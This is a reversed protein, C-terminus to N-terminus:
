FWLSILTRAQPKTKEREQLVIVNRLYNLHEHNEMDCQVLPVPPGELISYSSVSEATQTETLM